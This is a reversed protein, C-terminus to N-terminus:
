PAKDSLLDHLQRYGLASAISRPTHGAFDRTDPKAGHALLDQIIRINGQIVALHLATQGRDNQVELALGSHVLLVTVVDAHGAYAARMLPTWGYVDPLNVMAGRELLLKAIADYGKAAAMMLASWGNTAQQDVSVGQELLLCVTEMSGSWAAYMLATGFTRNSANVDAGATLLARVLNTAGQGAAAMLATKGRETPLDVDDLKALHRRIVDLQNHQVAYRWEDSIDGAFLTITTLGLLWVAGIGMAKGM